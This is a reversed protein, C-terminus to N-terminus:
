LRDIETTHFFWVVKTRDGVAYNIKSYGKCFNRFPTKQSKKKWTFCINVGSEKRMRVKHILIDSTSNVTPYCFIGTYSRRDGKTRAFEEIRHKRQVFGAPKTHSGNNVVERVNWQSFVLRDETHVDSTLRLKAHRWFICHDNPQSFKVADYRLVLSGCNKPPM